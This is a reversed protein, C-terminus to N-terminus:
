QTRLHLYIKKQWFVPDQDRVKKEAKPKLDAHTFLEAVIHKYQPQRAPQGVPQGRQM